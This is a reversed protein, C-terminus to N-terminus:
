AQLEKKVRGGIMGYIVDALIVNVASVLTLPGVLAIFMPMGSFPAGLALAVYAAALLSVPGNMIIGAAMAVFRNSKILLYGYIFCSAFM